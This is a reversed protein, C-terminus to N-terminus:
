EVKVLSQIERFRRDSMGRVLILHETRRFRGYKERHEIIRRATEKGIKPLKELEAATTLNLDITNESNPTQKQINLQKNPVPKSCAFLILCLLLCIALFTLRTVNFLLTYINYNFSNHSQM